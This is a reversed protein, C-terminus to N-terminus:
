LFIKRIGTDKNCLIKFQMDYNIDWKGNDYSILTDGISTIGTNNIVIKDIIARKKFIKFM